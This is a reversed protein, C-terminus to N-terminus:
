AGFPRPDDAEAISAVANRVTGAMAALGNTVEVIAPRLQAGVDTYNERFRRGGEDDGWLPSLQETQAVLAAANSIVDNMDALAAGLRHAATLAGGPDRLDSQQAM